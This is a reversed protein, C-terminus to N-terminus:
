FNCHVTHWLSCFNGTHWSSHVGSQCLSFFCFFVEFSLLGSHGEPEQIDIYVNGSTPHLHSAKHSMYTPFAQNKLCTPQFATQQRNEHDQYIWPLTHSGPPFPTTTAAKTHTTPSTCLIHHSSDPDLPWSYDRGWVGGAHLPDPSM